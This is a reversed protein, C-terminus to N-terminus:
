QSDFDITGLSPKGTLDRAPPQTLETGATISLFRPTFSITSLRGGQSLCVSGLFTRYCRSTASRPQASDDAAAPNDAQIYDLIIKLDARADETFLIKHAM